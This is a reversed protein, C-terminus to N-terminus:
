GPRGEAEGVGRGALGGEGDRERGGQGLGLDQVATPQENAAPCPVIAIGPLARLPVAM